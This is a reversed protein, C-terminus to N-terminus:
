QTVIFVVVVDVVVDFLCVIHKRNTIGLGDKEVGLDTFAPVVSVDSMEDPRSIMLNQGCIM